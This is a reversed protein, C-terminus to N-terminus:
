NGRNVIDGVFWLADESPNFAIEDLLHMLSYYCGQVDGIAYTTM